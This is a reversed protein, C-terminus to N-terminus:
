DFVFRMAARFLYDKSRQEQPLDKYDVMCPHEKKAPDKVPGYKWGTAIKERLWSLHSHEPQADPNLFHFLAGNLASTKQWEPCEDWPLQSDDGMSLCYARNMEHGLRAAYVVRERDFSTVFKHSEFNM